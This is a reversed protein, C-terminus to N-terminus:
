AEDEETRPGAAIIQPPLWLYGFRRAGDLPGRWYGHWHGRRVHPRVTRGTSQSAAERAERIVRGTTAGVTWVTPRDPAFLRWGRKTRTPQPRSPSRGPQRSDDIEPADSCLYLLLSVLPGVSEVLEHEGRALDPLRLGRADAQVRAQQTTRAVAETIPWPGLHLPIPILGDIDDGGLDLLLRLEPHREGPDWELHAWFGALESAGWPVGPTEVYVCWEPLRHLVEAPVDGPLDSVLLAPRLADDFRYIGQTYRWTGLAALVAMEHADALSLPGSRRVIAGFAAMPLFCWNPWDPLGRGRDARFQDILAPADPHRQLIARLRKGPATM